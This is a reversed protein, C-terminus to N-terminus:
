GFLIPHPTCIILYRLIYNEGSGQQLLVLYNCIYAVFTRIRCSWFTSRVYHNVNQVVIVVIGIIM